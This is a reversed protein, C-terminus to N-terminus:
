GNLLKKLLPVVPPWGAQNVFLFRKRVLAEIIVNECPNSRLVKTFFNGFSHSVEVPRTANEELYKKVFEEPSLSDNEPLFDALVGKDFAVPTRGWYRNGDGAIDVLPTQLESWRVPTVPILTPPVLVFRGPVADTAMVNELLQKLNVEQEDEAVIIEVPIDSFKEWAARVLAAKSESDFIVLIKGDPVSVAPTEQEVPAADAGQLTEEAPATENAAKKM